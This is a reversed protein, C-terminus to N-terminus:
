RFVVLAYALLAVATRAYHGTAWRAQKAVLVADPPPRDLRAVWDLIPVNVLLTITFVVIVAIMPTLAFVWDNARRPRDIAIAAISSVAITVILAPMYTEHQAIQNIIEMYTLASAERWAPDIVFAVILLSGTLLGLTLIAIKRAVRAARKTPWESSAM